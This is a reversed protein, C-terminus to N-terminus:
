QEVLNQALQNENREADRKEKERQRNAEAKEASSFASSGELNKMLIKRTSKYEPGNMGLRIMWIRLAYKESSEDVKKAQIRKQTLSQQNMAVALNQYAQVLASDGASITQFGTFSIRQEDFELGVIGTFGYKKQHSELAGLFDSVSECNTEKLSDILSQEASFRGGTAKSILNGRSYILNILNRLSTSTHNQMPMVIRIQYFNDTSVTKITGL